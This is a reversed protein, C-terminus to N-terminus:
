DWADAGLGTTSSSTQEDNEKLKQLTAVVDSADAKKKAKKTKDIVSLVGSREPVATAAVAVPPAQTTASTEKDITSTKAPKKAAPPKSSADTAASLTDTDKEAAQAASRAKKDLKKKKTKKTTAPAPKDTAVTAMSATQPTANDIDVDMKEEEPATFFTDAKKKKRKREDVEEQRKRKADEAVREREEVREQKQQQKLREQKIVKKHRPKAEKKDVPADKERKLREKKEMLKFNAAQKQKRELFKADFRVGDLIRLSPVLAMIKEKYDDRAALPNGKLNLNHLANLSGLSAIQSWNEIENNGLDLTELLQCKRLAAPITTIKNDNVRLEKLSANQASLEPLETLMNHSVSLKALKTLAHLSPLTRIHNHSLVLTNLETLHSLHKVKKIQNNGLILAKLNTLSAIESSLAKLQNHSMSLVNLNTLTEMGAFSEFANNSVNLMTLNTLGNLNCSKNNLFNNALDLKRLALCASIDDLRNVGKDRVKIEKVSDLSDYFQGLTDYDLKM